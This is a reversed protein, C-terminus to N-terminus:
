YINKKIQNIYNIRMQDQNQYQKNQILLNYETKKIQFILQKQIKKEEENRITKRRRVNKLKKKYIKM